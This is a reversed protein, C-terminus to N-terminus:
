GSPTPRGPTPSAPSRAPVVNSIIPGGDTGDPDIMGTMLYMRNPWTPGLLSCHYADCITFTEALAFHFPIDQREYYGMTYPGHAAGDAALHAPLWNDNLPRRAPPQGHHGARQAPRDLRPSTSPIAQSSTTQTDLHWPLLYGDPNHRTRSTSSRSAATPLADSRREPDGFGRVGALTGFYHDFSRNEQMHIVVHEIDRLSGRRPEAALAKRLNPPLLSSLAAGGAAAAATGLLRRRTIESM